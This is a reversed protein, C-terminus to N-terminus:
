KATTRAAAAAAATPEGDLRYTIRVDKRYDPADLEIPPWTEGRAPLFVGGLAGMGGDAIAHGTPNDYFATLRYVHDHHVPVGLRLLFRAMPIEVIEGTSDTRPTAEWLVTRATRDEFRLRTGYRHLHGGVGLIRGDIAPEGEWYRESRGPPLDYSHTGAPPMVDLYFPYFGLAGIFGGVPKFAMRLRLTAVYPRGTPNHLMATLLLSDRPHVRYGLLGPLRVPSTEAGAAALRLMIDSFLERKRPIILNVHHLLERPAPRGAEDVLEVTYGHIWGDAGFVSSLAPPQQMSRHGAHAPLVIPGMSIVLETDSAAVHLTPAPAAERASAAAPAAASREHADHQARAGSAGLALLAALASLM